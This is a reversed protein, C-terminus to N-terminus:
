CCPQPTLAPASGQAPADAPTRHNGLCGYSRIRGFGGVQRRIREAKRALTPELTVSSPPPRHRPPPQLRREQAAGGTPSSIGDSLHGGGRARSTGRRPSVTLSLSVRRASSFCPPRGAPSSPNSRALAEGRRTGRGPRTPGRAPGAEAGSVVQNIRGTTM